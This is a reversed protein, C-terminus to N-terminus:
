AIEASAVEFRGFRPRWDGMGIRRGATEIIEVVDKPDLIDIMVNVGFELRWQPFQPRTRVVRSQSVRVISEHRFRLDEWLAERTKPGDYIIEPDDPVFVAQKVTKGQKTIKAAECIMAEINIGPMVPHGEKNVYLSGMFELRALEIYDDDTKKRKGSIKKMEVVVPNVPSALTGNHILMPVLGEIEFFVTKVGNLAIM